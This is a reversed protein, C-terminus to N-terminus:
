FRMLYQAYVFDADVNAAGATTQFYEGSNFHPYGFLAFHHPNLTISLLLDIEHGLERDQAPNAPNYPAGTVGYPSTKEALFFYHYWVLLSAREGLVPTILQVNADNINRRGFLDM